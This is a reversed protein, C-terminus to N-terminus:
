AISVHRFADNSEGSQEKRQARDTETGARSRLEGDRQLAVIRDGVEFARRRLLSVEPVGDVPVAGRPQKRVVLTGPAELLIGRLVRRLEIAIAGERRRKTVLSRTFRERTDDDVALEVQVEVILRLLQPVLVARAVDALACLVPRLEVGKSPCRLWSVCM